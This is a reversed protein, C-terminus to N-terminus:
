RGGGFVFNELQEDTGNDFVDHFDGFGTVEATIDAAGWCPTCLRRVPPEKEDWPRAARQFRFLMRIRGCFECAGERATRLRIRAADAELQRQREEYTIGCGACPGPVGLSGDPPQIPFAHKCLSVSM